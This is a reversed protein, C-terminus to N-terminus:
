FLLQRLKTDMLDNIAERNGERAFGLLEFIEPDALVMVYHDALYTRCRAIVAENDTVSRCVLMGFYGRTANLRGNLQDLETNTPDGSINKVEFIPYSCDVRSRLDHFFGDKASNTFVTDIIKVGGNVDVKIDMNRLAGRFIRGLAYSVTRHYVEATAAGPSISRIREVYLSEISLSKPNPNIERTKSTRRVLKPDTSTPDKITDDVPVQEEIRDPTLLGSFLNYETKEYLRADDGIDYRKALRFGHLAMIEDLEEVPYYRYFTKRRRTVGMWLGDGCANKGEERIRKYSGEKQAVWLLYKGDNVKSYLVDLLYLREAPVPMVPPVNLLLALDFRRRDSLFPNPYVLKQFRSGYKECKKVNKKTFPNEGLERFDVACAKKGQKLIFPINKLKGAGFEVVTEIRELSSATFIDHLVEKLGDSPETFSPASGTVDIVIEKMEDSAPDDDKLVRFRYIPTTWLMNRGEDVFSRRM